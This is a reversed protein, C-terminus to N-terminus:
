KFERALIDQTVKTQGAEEFTIIEKFKIDEFCSLESCFTLWLGIKLESRGKL